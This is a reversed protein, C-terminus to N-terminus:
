RLRRLQEGIHEISEVDEAAALAKRLLRQREAPEGTVAALQQWLVPLATRSRFSPDRFQWGLSTLVDLLRALHQVQSPLPNLGLAAIGQCVGAGVDELAARLPLLQDLGPPLQDPKVDPMLLVSPAPCSERALWDFLCLSSHVRDEHSGGSMRLTVLR